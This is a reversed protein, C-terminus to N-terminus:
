IVRYRIETIMAYFRNNEVVGRRVQLLVFTANNRIEGRAKIENRRLLKARTTSM